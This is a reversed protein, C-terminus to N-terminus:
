PSVVEGKSASYGSVERLTEMVDNLEVVDANDHLWEGTVDPATRQLVKAVIRCTKPFGEEGTDEQIEEAVRVLLPRVVFERGGVMVNKSRPASM